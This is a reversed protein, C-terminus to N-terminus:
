RNEDFSTNIDEMTGVIDSHTIVKLFNAPNMNTILVHHLLNLNM